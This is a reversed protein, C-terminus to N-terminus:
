WYLAGWPLPPAPDAPPPPMPDRRPIIFRIDKECGRSHIVWWYDVLSLSDVGGIGMVTISILVSGHEGRGERHKTLLSLVGLWDTIEITITINVLIIDLDLILSYTRGSGSGESPCQHSAYSCFFVWPIFALEM